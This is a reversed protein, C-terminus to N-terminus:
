GGSATARIVANRGCRKAERLAEEASMLLAEAETGNEPATAVGCSITIGPLKVGRHRIRLDEIRCRLEEARAGVVGPPADPLLLTFEEAAYRCAVDSPRSSRLLVEAVAKLVADGAEHGHQDNYTTFHDVDIQILGLPSGSWTIRALERSLTEMLYNRHFLGTLPDRVSLDRLADRLRLNAVSMSVQGSVTEALQRDSADLMRTVSPFLHIVGLEEGRGLLPVCLCVRGPPGEFHHCRPEGDDSLHSRGLRLAWCESAAFSAEAAPTEGWSRVTRYREPSSRLISLSGGVETFLRECSRAVVAYAEESSLCGKLLDALDTLLRIETGRRALAEAQARLETVDRIVVVVSESDLRTARVDFVRRDPGIVSPAHWLAGTEAVARYAEFREPDPLVDLLRRGVLEGAGFGLSACTTENAFLWEFDVIRGSTDRGTRLVSVADSLHDLAAMWWVM